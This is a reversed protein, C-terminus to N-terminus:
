KTEGSMASVRVRYSRGVKEVIRIELNNQKDTFVAKDPLDFAAGQLYPIAPDANMLKVPAEGHRCEDVSDDARM